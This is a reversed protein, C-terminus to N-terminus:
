EVERGYFSGCFTLRCRRIKWCFLFFLITLLDYPINLEPMKNKRCGNKREKQEEKGAAPFDITV